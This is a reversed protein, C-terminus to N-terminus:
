AASRLKPAVAAGTQAERFKELCFYTAAAIVAVTLVTRLNPM